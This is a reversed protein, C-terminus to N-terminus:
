ATNEASIATKEPFIPMSSGKELHEENAKPYLMYLSTKFCYFNSGPFSSYNFRFVLRNVILALLDAFM